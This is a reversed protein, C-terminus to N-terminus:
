IRTALFESQHRLSDGQNLYLWTHHDASTMPSYSLMTMCQPTAPERCTMSKWNTKWMGECQVRSDKGPGAAQATWVETQEIVGRINESPLHLSLHTPSFLFSYIPFAKWVLDSGTRRALSHEWSLERDCLQQAAMEAELGMEAVNATQLFTMTNLFMSIWGVGM